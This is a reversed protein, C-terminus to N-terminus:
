SFLRIKAVSIRDVNSASTNLAGRLRSRLRKLVDEVGWSCTNFFLPAKAADKEDDWRLSYCLRHFRHALWFQGVECSYRGTCEFTPEGAVALLQLLQSTWWAHVDQWGLAHLKDAIGEVDVDRSAAKCRDGAGSLWTNDTLKLWKRGKGSWIPWFRDTCHGFTNGKCGTLSSLSEFLQM